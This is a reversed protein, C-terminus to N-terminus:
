RSAPKPPSSPVTVRPSGPDPLGEQLEQDWGVVRGNEFEVKLYRQDYFM